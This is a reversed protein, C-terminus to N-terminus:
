ASAYYINKMKEFIYVQKLRDGDNRKLYESLTKLKVDFSGYLCPDQCHSFLPSGPFLSVPKEQSPIGFIFCLLRDVGNQAGLSIKPVFGASCLCLFFVTNSFTYRLSRVHCLNFMIHKEPLLDTEHPRFVHVERVAFYVM